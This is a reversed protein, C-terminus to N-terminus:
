NSQTFDRELGNMSGDTSYL